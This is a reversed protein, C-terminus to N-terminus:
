FGTNFQLAITNFMNLVRTHPQPYQMIWSSHRCAFIIKPTPGLDPPLPGSPSKPTYAKPTVRNSHEKLGTGIGCPQLMRAFCRLM